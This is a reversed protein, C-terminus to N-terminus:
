NKVRNKRGFCGKRVKWNITPGYHLQHEQLQWPVAQLCCNPLLELLMLLLGPLLLLGLLLLLGAATEPNLNVRTLIVFFICVCMSYSWGGGHERAPKNWKLVANSAQLAGQQWSCIGSTILKFSILIVFFFM